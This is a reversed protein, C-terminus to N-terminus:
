RRRWDKINWLPSEWASLAPGELSKSVAAVEDFAVLPYVAVRPSTAGNAGLAVPQHAVPQYIGGDALKGIEASWPARWDAWSGQGTLPGFFAEARSLTPGVAIGITRLNQAVSEAVAQHLPSLSPSFRIALPRGARDRWGDGDRDRWGAESLLTRAHELDFSVEGGDLQQPSPAKSSERGAAAYLALIAARDISHALAQRLRWDAFRRPLGAWSEQGLLATEAFLISLGEAWTRIEPSALGTEGSLAKLALPESGLNWAFDTLGAQAAEAAFVRDGGGAQLELIRFAPKGAERFHPNPEFIIKTTALVRDNLVLVDDEAFSLARYPGTGVALRNAAAERATQGIHAAFIHRPLILGEAGVFPRQWAAQPTKFTIKVRYDDLAEIGQIERYSAARGAAAPSYLLYHYTFVVDGATFPHGDAWKIGQKLTWVVRRGDPSIGGNERSPIEEALFPVLRGSADRSALPEYVIRSAAMDQLQDSLHPNLTVPANPFFLHLKGDRAPVEAARLTASLTLLILCLAAATGWFGRVRAAFGTGM